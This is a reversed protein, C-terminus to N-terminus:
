KASKLNEVSDISNCYVVITTRMLVLHPTGLPHSVRWGSSTGIKARGGEGGFFYIHCTVHVMHHTVPSMHCMIHTMHCTVCLPHHVSEWFQLIRAIVTKYDHHWRVHSTVHSVHFIVHSVHFTVHSMLLTVYLPHHVNEKFKLERARINKSYHYKWM